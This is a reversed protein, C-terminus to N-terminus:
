PSWRELLGLGRLPRAGVGDADLADLGATVLAGVPVIGRGVTRPMPSSASTAWTLSVTCSGIM